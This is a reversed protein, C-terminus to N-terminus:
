TGVEGFIEQALLRYDRSAASTASYRLVAEKVFTSEPVKDTRRITQRFM